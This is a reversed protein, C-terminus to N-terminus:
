RHKICKKDIQFTNCKLDSPVIKIICKSKKGYLPETCGKEKKNFNFIKNKENEITCRSRFHEYREKVDRYSLNSVKNLCKNIREHLQYIYYSFTDRNKMHNNKLPFKKFNNKLNERCYSCPLIHQLNLIFNKYNKVDNKSPNVPYNFSITHLTHWMSPGWVSTLMGNSCSYDNKNYIRKLKKKTHIKNQKKNQKKNQIKNRKRTHIKNRKRTIIKNNTTM